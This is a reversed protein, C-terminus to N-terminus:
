RGEQREETEKTRQMGHNDGGRSPYLKEAEEPTIWVVPWWGSTKSAVFGVTIKRTIVQM